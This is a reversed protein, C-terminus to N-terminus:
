GAREPGGSDHYERACELQWLSQCLIHFQFTQLKGDLIQEVEIEAEGIPQDCLSCSRGTGQGGWMRSSAAHPLQQNAIRHRAIQRLETELQTLVM